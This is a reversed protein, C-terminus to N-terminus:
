YETVGQRSFPIDESITGENTEQLPGPFVSHFTAGDIVAVTFLEPKFMLPDLAIGFTSVRFKGEHFADMLERYPTSHDYDIRRCAVM